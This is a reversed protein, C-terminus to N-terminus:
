IDVIWGKVFPYQQKLGDLDCVAVDYVYVDQHNGPNFSGLLKKDVCIRSDGSSYSELDCLLLWAGAQGKELLTEYTPRHFTSFTYSLNPHDACLRLIEDVDPLYKYVKTEVVIHIGDPMGQLFHQFTPPELDTEDGIDDHYVVLRGDALTQIDIEFRRWEPVAARVMEVTNARHLIDM